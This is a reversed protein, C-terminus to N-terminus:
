SKKSTVATFRNVQQRVQKSSCKPCTVAATEHEKMGMTKGFAKGCKECRYRYEPM